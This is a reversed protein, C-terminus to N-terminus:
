SSPGQQPHDEGFSSGEVQGRGSTEGSGVQVSIGGKQRRNTRIPAGQCGQKNHGEKGCTGCKVTKARSSSSGVEGEERRRQKRPRGARRKLELPYYKDRENHPTLDVDPFPYIVAEYAKKWMSVTFYEHVLDEINRGRYLISSCTLEGLNVTYRRRMEVVEYHQERGHLLKCRRCLSTCAAIKKQITPPVRKENSLAKQYMTEWECVNNTLEMSKAHHGFTYQPGLIDSLHTALSLPFMNNNGDLAVAALLTGGFPGNLHCGDIGIWPRCGNLFRDMAQLKVTSRPNLELLLTCYTHLKGYSEQFSGQYKERAMRRARQMKWIQPEVGWKDLCARMTANDLDPNAELLDGLQTTIWKSTTAKNNSLRLCTHEKKLTKVM